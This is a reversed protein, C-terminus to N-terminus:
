QSLKDGNPKDFSAQWWVIKPLEVIHSMSFQEGQVDHIM